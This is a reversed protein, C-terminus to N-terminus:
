PSPLRYSGDLLAADYSLMDPNSEFTRICSNEYYIVTLCVKNNGLREKTIRLSLYRGSYASVLTKIIDNAFVKVHDEEIM